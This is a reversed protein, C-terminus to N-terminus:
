AHAAEDRMAEEIEGPLRVFRLQLSGMGLPVATAALINTEEEGLDTRYACYGNVLSYEGGGPKLGLGKAVAWIVAAASTGILDTAGVALQGWAAEDVPLTIVIRGASDRFFCLDAVTEHTVPQEDFALALPYAQQLQGEVNRLLGQLSERVAPVLTSAALLQRYQVRQEYLDGIRADEHRTREFAELEAARKRRMEEGQIGDRIVGCLGDQYDRFAKLFAHRLEAGHRAKEEEGTRLKDEIAGADQRAQRFSVELGHGTEKADRAEGEKRQRDSRLEMLEDHLKSRQREIEDLRKQVEAVKEDAEAIQRKAEAEADRYKNLESATRKVRDEAAQKQQLLDALRRDLLALADRAELTRARAIEEITM